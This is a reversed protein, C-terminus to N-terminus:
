HQKRPPDNVPRPEVPPNDKFQPALEANIKAWEPNEDETAVIADIPCESLCAACETCLEPDIVMFEESRYEGPYICEVPCVDVCTAYREGLCKEGIVSPM